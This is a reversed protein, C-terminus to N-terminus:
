MLARGINEELLTITDQRMVELLNTGLPLERSPQQQHGWGWLSRSGVWADAPSGGASAPLDPETEQPTGAGKGQTGTCVLNQTHGGPTSM